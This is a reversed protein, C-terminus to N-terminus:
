ASRKNKRNFSGFDVVKPNQAAHKHAAGEFVHLKTLRKNALAVSTRRGMMRKVANFVLKVPKEERMQGLTRSKIGGIWGTHWIFKTKDAKTGTLAIKEANIIIVHDGTDMGPTYVAKNKGRLITAVYAALRGLVVDTADILIWEHNLESQKIHKTAM